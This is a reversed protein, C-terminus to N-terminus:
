STTFDSIVKWLQHVNSGKVLVVDGQCATRNLEKKLEEHCSFFKAVKNSKKFENHLVEAEDGICFLIDVREKAEKGVELHSVFSYSGLDKMSGLVAITKGNKEPKPLNKLAAIMSAANANYSDDIFYVGHKIKKEFRREVPKLFRAAESIELDTMGLYRAVEVAASINEIMHEEIFPPAFNLPLPIVRSENPMLKKVIDFKYARAHVVAFKAKDTFIEAKAEAIQNVNDFNKSHCAVIPNLVVIEPPAISVLNKINGKETMSMELILYEEDGKADLIALPMTAQSNRNGETKGCKFKTKLISHLFEKTTTKGISGTIGIIKTKRELLANKSIQHLAKLVDEVFFLILGHDPGKYSSDVCAAFAGRKKVDELFLHGDSREGKLAFFFSGDKVERSDISFSTIPLCVDTTKGLWEAIKKISYM